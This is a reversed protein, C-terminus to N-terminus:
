FVVNSLCEIFSPVPHKNFFINYVSVFLPYESEDINLTKLVKYVERATEPGQLKQGNLMEAELVEIPKNEKVFARSVRMNRGGYCTTVLDAVGCSEFFTAIEPPSDPFFAKAFKMMEMLGLRIVAAKTNDGLEMGTVFGAGCAIINKLAGCIEVTNPDQVVCIRFNPTQLLKKFLQGNEEKTCGITTECFDESAVESAINAGMLVSVDMSLAKRIVDSILQLGKDTHDMGTQQSDFDQKPYNVMRPISNKITKLLQPLVNSIDGKILSIGIAGPKINSQITKCLGRIFQHPVVFVLMDAGKSAEVLDPVAVVNEPLKHGPLYKVNEHRTNIIETLKEGNIEEEYVYMNVRTHFTDYAAANRGILKAIASGWNGSGIICVKKAMKIASNM